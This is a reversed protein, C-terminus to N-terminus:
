LKITTKVFYSSGWLQINRDHSDSIQNVTEIDTVNFINKAGISLVIKKNLFNKSLSIDLNSFDQRITETLV